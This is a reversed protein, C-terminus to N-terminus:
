SRLEAGFEEKLVAIAKEHLKDIESDSLTNSTDRYRISLLIGKKGRPIQEGIYEDKLKVAEVRKENRLKKLLGGVPIEEGIIISIDRDSAPFRPLAEFRGVGHRHDVIDTLRLGFVWVPEQLDFREEIGSALRGAYGIEDGEGAVLIAGERSELAPGDYPLVWPTDLDLSRAMACLIGYLDFWDVRADPQHWIEASRAGTLAGVIWESEVVLSDKVTHVMGIEFVRVDDMQRRVNYRLVKLVGPLLDRRLESHEEGRPNALVVPAADPVFPHPADKEVLSNTTIEHFGLAILADRLDERLKQLTTPGEPADGSISSDSGLEDYGYVRALEEAIHASGEIDPRWSPICVNWEVAESGEAIEFGLKHLISRSEEESIVAGLLGDIWPKRVTISRLTLAEQSVFEVLGPATEGGALEAMLMAARDAALGTIVPDTGREFRKRSETVIGLRGGGISVRVPDFHASELLIDNTDESIQSELGGIIGAIALPREGETILLIEPDLEREEEDLTILTEDSRARRVVIQGERVRQLDFAHQPQGVEMMVYNTIDVIINIPRLGVSILRGALWVPSSGTSVGRILRASYRPCGAPDDVTVSITDAAPAGSEHVEHMYPTLPLDYLGAVERAIGYVCLADPRNPTIDLELIEDDLGQYAAFPTGVSADEALVMIGEADDGLELESESCIMGSSVEGRIKVKKLKMGGPLVAGVGAFPVKQGAAVNAAGCVVSVPEGGTTVSCLFLREANPHPKVELVEGVNIGRYEDGPRVISEVELGVMTLRVALDEISGEYPVFDRLWSLPVRM